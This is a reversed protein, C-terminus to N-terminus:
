YPLKFLDVRDHRLYLDHLSSKERKRTEMEIGQALLM